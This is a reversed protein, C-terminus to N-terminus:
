LTNSPGDGSQIGVMAFFEVVSCMVYEIIPLANFHKSADAWVNVCWCYFCRHGSVCILTCHYSEWVALCLQDHCEQWEVTRCELLKKASTLIVHIKQLLQHILFWCYEVLYVLPIYVTNLFFCGRVIEEVLSIHLNVCFMAPFSGPSRHVWGIYFNCENWGIVNSQISCHEFYRGKEKVCLSIAHTVTEHCFWLVTINDWM